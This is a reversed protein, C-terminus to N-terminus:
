SDSVVPQHIADVYIMATAHGPKLPGLSGRDARRPLFVIVAGVLVFLALLGLVVAAIVTGIILSRRPDRGPKSSAEVPETV